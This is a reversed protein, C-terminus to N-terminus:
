AARPVTAAAPTLEWAVPAHSRDHLRADLRRQFTAAGEPDRVAYLARAERALADFAQRDYFQGAYAAFTQALGAPPRTQVALHLQRAPTQSDRLTPM